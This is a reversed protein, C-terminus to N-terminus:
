DTCIDMVISHQALNSWKHGAKQSGIFQLGGSEETWTELHFTSAHTVMEKEPLDEEGLSLVQTEKMEQM